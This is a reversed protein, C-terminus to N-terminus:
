ESPEKSAGSPRITDGGIVVGSLTVMAMIVTESVGAGCYNAIGALSVWAM